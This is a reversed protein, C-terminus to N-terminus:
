LISKISINKREGYGLSGVKILHQFDSFNQQPVFFFSCFSRLLDRFGKISEYKDQFSALFTQERGVALISKYLCLPTTNSKVFLFFHKLLWRLSQNLSNIKLKNLERLHFIMNSFKILTCM